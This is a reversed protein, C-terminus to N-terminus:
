PEGGGAGDSGDFSSVGHTADINTHGVFWRGLLGPAQSHSVLYWLSSEPQNHFRFGSGEAGQFKFKEENAQRAPRDRGFHWTPPLRPLPPHKLSREAVDGNQM